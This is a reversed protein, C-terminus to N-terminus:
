MIYHEDNEETILLLYIDYLLSGIATGKYVNVVTTCLLSLITYINM